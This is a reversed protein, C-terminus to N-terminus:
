LGLGLTLWQREDLHEGRTGRALMRLLATAGPRFADIPKYGLAWPLDSGRMSIDRGTGRALM